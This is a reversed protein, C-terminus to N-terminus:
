YRKRKKKQKTKTKQLRVPSKKESNLSCLFQRFTPKNRASEALSNAMQLSFDVRLIM